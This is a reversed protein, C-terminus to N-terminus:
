REGTGVPGFSRIRTSGDARFAVQVMGDRDTRLVSAGSARLRELVAPAPHGYRNRKGSSILALRPAVTRLFRASTSTRSGHHAVKLIDSDLVNPDTRRLIEVEAAEEIDGTLLIKHGFGRVQLVLSGNNGGGPYQDDPHLTHVRWRGLSWSDGASAYRLTTSHHDALSSTCSSDGIATPVVIEAAPLYATLDVLGSCHDIDSHTAVLLDVSRVGRAALVPVLVRAAIDARPWGGGDVLMVHRGDRLLLADGQGVDIMTLEAAPRDLPSCFLVLSVLLLCLRTIGRHRLLLATLLCASAFFAGSETMSVPWTLVPSSPIRTMEALPLTLLDILPTISAALRPSLLAATGWIFVAALLLGMWPVAVLNLFPAGPALLAFRSWVWPGCALQAGVSAALPRRLMAPVLEWRRCLPPTLMVIGATASATLQFAVDFVLNPSWLIMAIVAGALSQISATPRRLGLSFAAILTMLGARLVSPRAGTLAVYLAVAALAVTARALRPLPACLIYVGGALLAVHLGSVAFLHALGLRRLAQRVQRPLADGQGLLLAQLVEGGRGDEVMTLAEQLRASLASLLRSSLPRPQEVELFRSSKLTLSWRGPEIPPDNGLGSARRLYGRGRLRQGAFPRDDGQVSVRLPQTWFVVQQSQYLYDVRANAQWGYDGQKWEGTLVGSVLLPRKIDVPAPPVRDLDTRAWVALLGLGIAAISSGRRRGLAVGSGILIGALPVSREGLSFGVTIACTLCLAPVALPASRLDM